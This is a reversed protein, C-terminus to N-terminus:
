WRLSPVKIVGKEIFEESWISGPVNFHVEQKRLKKQREIEKKDRELSEYFSKPDEDLMKEWYVQEETKEM